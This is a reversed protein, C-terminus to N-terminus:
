TDNTINRRCFVMIDTSFVSEGLQATIVHRGQNMFEISQIEAILNGVVHGVNPPINVSVRSNHLELLEDSPRRLTLEFPLAVPERADVEVRVVIYFKPLLFPFQDAVVSRFEGIIDMRRSLENVVVNEALLVWSVQM